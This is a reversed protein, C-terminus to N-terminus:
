LSAWSLEDGLDVRPCQARMRMLESSNSLMAFAAAKCSSRMLASTKTSTSAPMMESWFMWPAWRTPIAEAPHGQLSM